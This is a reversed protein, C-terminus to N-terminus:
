LPALGKRIAYKVLRTQDHIGLKRMLRSRHTDVTKISLGLRDAAIRNSAGEAILQLVQRERVTLRVFPDDSADEGQQPGQKQSVGTSLFRQGAAVVRIAQILQEAAAEKLVYGRAGLRLARAVYEPDVHMTLMLVGVGPLRRLLGRCVDLGNMGPLSIDLVVVDPRCQEALEIVATGDGCQGVIEIDPQLGVLAALGQRVLMHDDVLLVRIVEGM